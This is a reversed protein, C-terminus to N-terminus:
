VGPLVAVPVPARRLIEASRSGLFVRRLGGPPSSGVILLDGGDWDLTHVAEAWDDGDAIDTAIFRRPLELQDLGRIAQDVRRRMQEKWQMAVENDGRGGGIAPPTTAQRVWFTATRLQTDAREALVAAYRLAFASASDPGFAVTVRRLPHSADYRSYGRPAIVVPVPSSNLLGRAIEGLEIRGPGAGHASGLVLHGPRAQEIAALLGARVSRERIAVTGGFRDGLRTRAEDIADAALQQAFAEDSMGVRLPSPVGPAVVVVVAVQVSRDLATGLTAGLELAARGGDGVRGPEIAVLM